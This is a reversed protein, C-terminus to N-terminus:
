FDRLSYVTSISTTLWNNQLHKIFFRSIACLHFVAYRSAYQLFTVSSNYLQFLLHLKFSESFLPARKAQQINRNWKLLSKIANIIEVFTLHSPDKYICHTIKELIRCINAFISYDYRMNTALFVFIDHGGIM